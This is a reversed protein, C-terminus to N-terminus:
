HRVSGFIIQSQDKKSPPVVFVSEDNEEIHMCTTSMPLPMHLPSIDVPSNVDDYYLSYDFNINENLFWEDGNDTFNNCDPDNLYAIIPEEDFFVELDDRSESDAENGSDIDDSLSKEVVKDNEKYLLSDTFYNEM